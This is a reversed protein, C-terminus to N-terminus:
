LDEFKEVRVNGGVIETEERSALAQKDYLTGLVTVLRGLDECQLASIKSLLEQRRKDSLRESATSEAAFSLLGDILSENEVARRLRRELLAQTMNITRWASKVFDAKYQARLRALTPDRESERDYKRKWGRLTSEPVGLRRSIYSINNNTDFLAYAKEMVDDNYKKGSAM